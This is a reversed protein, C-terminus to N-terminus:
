MKNNLRSINRIVGTHTFFVDYRCCSSPKVKKSQPIIYSIVKQDEEKPYTYMFCMIMVDKIDRM